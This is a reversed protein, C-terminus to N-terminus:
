PMFMTLTIPRRVGLSNFPKTFLLWAIALKRLTACDHLLQKGVNFLVPKSLARQVTHPEVFDTTASYAISGQSLKGPWSCQWQEQDECVSVTLHSRSFCGPSPLNGSGQVIVCRIKDHLTDQWTGHPLHSFFVTHVVRWRYAHEQNKNCRRASSLKWVFKWFLQRPSKLERMLQWFINQCSCSRIWLWIWLRWIWIWIWM